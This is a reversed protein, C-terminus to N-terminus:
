LDLTGRTGNKGRPDEAEASQIVMISIVFGVLLLVSVSLQTKM